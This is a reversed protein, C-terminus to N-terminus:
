RRRRVMIGVALAILVIVIVILFDTGEEIEELSAESITVDMPSGFERPGDVLVIEYTVVLPITNDIFIIIFGGTVATGKGGQVMMQIDSKADVVFPPNYKWQYIQKDLHIDHKVNFIEGFNRVQLEFEVAKNSDLTYYIGTIYGTTGAPVSIMAMQSQSHDVDVVALISDPVGSSIAGYGCYITGENKGSSGAQRGRLRFVRIWTTTTNVESQGSLQVTENVLAWNEDLGFVTVNWLGTGDVTDNVDTSSLSLVRATSLYPYTANGGNWIMEYGEGLVDENEGFKHWVTYGPIEGRSIELGPDSLVPVNTLLRYLDGWVHVDQLASSNDISTSTSSSYLNGYYIMFGVDSASYVLPLTVTVTVSNNWSFSELDYPLAVLPNQIAVFRIDDGDTAVHNWDVVTDNFTLAITKNVADNSVLSSNVTIHRRYEWDYNFWPVHELVYDAPDQAGVNVSLYPSLYLSFLLLFFIPALSERRM